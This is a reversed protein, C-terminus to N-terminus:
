NVSVVSVVVARHFADHYSQAHPNRPSELLKPKHAVQRRQPTDMNNCNHQETYLM